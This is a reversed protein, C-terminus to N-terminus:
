KMSRDLLNRRMADTLFSPSIYVVKGGIVTMAVETEAIRPTPIKFLDETLVVLDALKGVELSGKISEEFSAYAGGLTYGHIVEELSLCQNPIWGGEPRGDLDARTVATYIGLLPDLDVVPWDSGLALRAGSDRLSKWAFGYEARRGGVHRRWVNVIDPSAHYPQMSAIVDIAAFRPIDGVAAGAPRTAPCPLLPTDDAPRTTAAKPETPPPKKGRAERLPADVLLMGFLGILVALSL